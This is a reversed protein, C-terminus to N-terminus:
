HKNKQKIRRRGGTDVSESVRKGEGGSKGDRDTPHANDGTRGRGAVGDVASAQPKATRGAELPEPGCGLAVPAFVHDGTASAQQPPSVAISSCSSATEDQCSRSTRRAATDPTNRATPSATVAKPAPPAAATAKTPPRTAPPAVNTGLLRRRRTWRWSPTPVRM